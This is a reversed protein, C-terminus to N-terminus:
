ASVTSGSKIAVFIDANGKLDDLFLFSLSGMFPFVIGICLIVAYNRYRGGVFAIM